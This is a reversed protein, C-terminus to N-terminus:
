EGMHKWVSVPKDLSHTYYYHKAINTKADINDHGFSLSSGLEKVLKVTEVTTVKRFTFVPINLRRTWKAFARELRDLPDAQGMIRQMRLKMELKQM